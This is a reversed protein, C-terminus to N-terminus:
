CSPLSLLNDSWKGDAYTRIYKAGGNGPDVVGVYAVNGASDESM